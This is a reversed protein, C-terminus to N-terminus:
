GPLRGREKGRGRALDGIGGHGRLDPVQNAQRDHLHFCVPSVISDPVNADVKIARSPTSVQSLRALGGRHASPDHGHLVVVPVRASAWYDRPM